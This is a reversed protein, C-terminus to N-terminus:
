KKSDRPTTVKALCVTSLIIAGVVVFIGLMGSGMWKLSTLFNMFNPETLM